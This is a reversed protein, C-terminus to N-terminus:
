TETKAIWNLVGIKVNQKESETQFSRFELKSKLNRYKLNQM